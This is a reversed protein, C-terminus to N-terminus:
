VVRWNMAISIRDSNGKNRLVMHRVFSRFILLRGVVPEYRAVDFNCATDRDRRIPLMDIDSMPNRFVIHGCNAPTQVYYVASLHSGPHVHYEQYDGPKAINVWAESLEASPNDMGHETAYKRIHFATEKYLNGFAAEARIDKHISSYTDCDWEHRAPSQDRLDYSAKVLGAQVYAPVMTSYIPTPFWFEMM